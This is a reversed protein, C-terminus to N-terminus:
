LAHFRKKCVLYKGTAIKKQQKALNDFILCHAQIHKSVVIVWSFMFYTQLNQFHGVISQFLPLGLNRETNYISEYMM